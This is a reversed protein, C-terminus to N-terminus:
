RCAASGLHGSGEEAEGPRSFSAIPQLKGCSEISCSLACQGDQGGGGDSLSFSLLAGTAPLLAKPCDLTEHKPQDKEYTSHNVSLAAM